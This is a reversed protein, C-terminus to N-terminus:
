LAEREGIGLNLAQTIPAVLSYLVFSMGAMEGFEETATALIIAIAKLVNGPDRRYAPILLDNTLADLGLGLMVLGFGFGVMVLYRRYHHWLYRLDRRILVLFLGGVSIAFGYLVGRYGLTQVLADSRFLLSRMRRVLLINENASLVLFVAGTMRFFLASPRRSTPSRFLTIGILVCGIVLLQGAAFWGPFSRFRNLDVLNNAQGRLVFSLVYAVVVSLEISLLGFLLRDAATPTTHGLFRQQITKLGRLIPTYISVFPATSRRIM